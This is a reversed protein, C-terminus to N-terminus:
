FHSLIHIFSSLASHSPITTSLSLMQSLCDTGQVTGAMVQANEQSVKLIQVLVHEWFTANKERFVYVAKDLSLVKGKHLLSLYGQAVQDELQSMSKNACIDCISKIEKDTFM